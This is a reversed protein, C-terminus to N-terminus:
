EIMRDLVLIDGKKSKVQNNLTLINDKDAVGKKEQTKNKKKEIKSIDDVANLIENIKFEKIM